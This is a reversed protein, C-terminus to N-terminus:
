APGDYQATRVAPSRTRVAWRTTPIAALGSGAFLAALVFWGPQGWSGILLTMLAPSIMQATAETTAAAGQYQGTYGQPTLDLTLGWKSAIFWLEGALHAGAAAIVVAGALLGGEGRTSAILLCALALAAGSWVARTSAPRATDCGRSARVQLLAVGLSNIIVVVAALAAPLETDRVLWLPLATSVLGWCLSLAGTSTVVALFAHDGIIRHPRRNPQIPRQATVAPARSLLGAYILSTLANIAILATFATTTDIALVIAAIPAGLTYGVHSAVRQRALAGVRTAAPVLGAIYSTELGPQARSAVTNVVAVLVFPVTSRVFIFAAMSLGDAALLVVLVGRPGLRDALGGCPTAAALAAGGAIFFGIGVVKVGLGAITTFYIAWSTYWAGEGVTTVLAGAAVTRLPGREPMQHRWYRSVREM